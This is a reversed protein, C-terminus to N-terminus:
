RRRFADYAQLLSDVLLDGVVEAGLPTPHTLDGGALQPRTRYWRAMSGEGGMADFISWFAAGHNAAVRRQIAVLQVIVPKTVLAGARAEARDLPAVLLLSAGPAIARVEDVLDGLRREYDDSDLRWLDSENTGYQLIVLGPDRLGMQEEWHARNQREWFLAMAAHAGLADVVVGPEERELAVGFCRVPGGGAARVTLRSEGDAVSVSQVRAVKAPGRTSVHVTPAGTATLDVVGGGPQELYYLDFRSVRRGYDGRPATGFWAVGGGYSAFSVGGLGYMGDPAIPGALRSAKWEGESGHFVDNHFYWEWPNAILIFGHGADGFRRQLRRRVTGSVYDSAVTSDGYYLVRSVAGTEHRDTKGLRTFFADLAHGTPDEIAPRRLRARVAPDIPPLAGEHESEEARDTPLANNITPQNYTAPLSQEGTPPPPLSAALPEREDDAGGSIPASARPYPLVRLARLAPTMYPVALACVMVILARATKGFLPHDSPDV